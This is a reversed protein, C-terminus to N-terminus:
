AAPCDARVDRLSRRLVAVSLAVREVRAHLCADRACGVHLATLSKNSKLAESLADLGHPGLNNGACVGCLGLCEVRGGKNVSSM